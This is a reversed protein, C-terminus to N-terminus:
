CNELGPRYPNELAEFSLFLRFAEELNGSM